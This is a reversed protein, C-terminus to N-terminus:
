ESLPDVLRSRKGSGAIRKQVFRQYQDIYEADPLLALSGGKPAINAEPETRVNM